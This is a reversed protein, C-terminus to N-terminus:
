FTLKKRFLTKVFNEIAQPVKGMKPNVGNLAILTNYVRLRPAGFFIGMDSASFDLNLVHFFMGFFCCLLKKKQVHLFFKAFNAVKKKYTPNGNKQLPYKRGRLM